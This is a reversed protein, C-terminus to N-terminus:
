YPAPGNYDSFTNNFQRLVTSYTSLKQDNVLPGTNNQFKIGTMGTLGTAGCYTMLGTLQRPNVSTTYHFAKFSPDSM